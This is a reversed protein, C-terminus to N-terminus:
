NLISLVQCSSLVLPVDQVLTVHLNDVSQLVQLLYTHEALSGTLRGGNPNLGYTMGGNNMTNGNLNRQNNNGGNGNQMGRDAPTM